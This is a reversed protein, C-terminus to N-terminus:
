PRGLNALADACVDAKALFHYGDLRSGFQAVDASSTLVIRPGHALSAIRRAIAMGRQDHPSVDVVVVQPDLAVATEVAREDAAVDALVDM